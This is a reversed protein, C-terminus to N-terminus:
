AWEWTVQLEGIDLDALEKFAAPSFDLDYKSCSACADVVKVNVSKGKYSAKIHKGCHGSVAEDNLGGEDYLTQSIAVIHDSESSHTECADDGPTYFTGRGKETNSKKELQINVTNNNAVTANSIYAANIFPAALLLVSTFSTVSVM